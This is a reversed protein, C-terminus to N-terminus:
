NSRNKLENYLSRIEDGNLIDPIAQGEGGVAGYMMSWADMQIKFLESKIKDDFARIQREKMELDKGALKLQEQKISIDLNGLREKLDIERNMIDLQSRKIDLEADALLLEKEKLQLEKEKLKIELLSLEQKLDFEKNSLTIQNDKVPTDVSLQLITNLLNSYVTAYDTGKIRGKNFQTDLEQLVDKVLESFVSNVQNVDYAM